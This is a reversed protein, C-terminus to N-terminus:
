EKFCGNSLKALHHRLLRCLGWTHPREPRGHHVFPLRRRLAAM